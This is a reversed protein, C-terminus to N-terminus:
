FVSCLLLQLLTINIQQNDHVPIRQEERREERTERWEREEEKKKDRRKEGLRVKM